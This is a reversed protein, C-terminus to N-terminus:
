NQLLYEFEQISVETFHRKRVNALQSKPNNVNIHIIHAQNDSYGLDMETALLEHNKPTNVSNCIAAILKIMDTEGDMARRPVVRNGRSLSILNSM